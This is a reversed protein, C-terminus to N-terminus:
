GPSGPDAPMASDVPKAPDVAVLPGGRKRQARAKREIEDLKRRIAAAHQEQEVLMWRLAEVDEELSDGPARILRRRPERPAIFANAIFGTLVSFLAIGAFLLLTGILRGIPTVPYRDGYGVTTITVFGWWVADSADKINGSPDKGEVVYIAIGAFEVVAIVLFLTFLFTALARTRSLEGGMGEAGYRRLLRLVRVVRFIRFLGLTPVCSLLDAWGFQHVVYRRRPSATWFRYLFDLFFVPAILGDVLLAVQQVNPQFPILVVATNLISLLSLLLIFLEYGIGKLETGEALGLAGPGRGDGDAPATTAEDGTPDAM